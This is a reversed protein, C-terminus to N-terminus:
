FRGAQSIKCKVQFRAKRRPLQDIPRSSTFPPGGFVAHSVAASNGKLPISDLHM